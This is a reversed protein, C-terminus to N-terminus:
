VDTYEGTVPNISLKEFLRPWTKDSVFARFPFPPSLGAAWKDHFFETVVISAKVLDGRCVKLIPELAANVFAPHHEEDPEVPKGLEDFAMKRAEKFDDMVQEQPSMARPPKPPVNPLEEQFNGNKKKKKEINIASRQDSFATNSKAQGGRSAVDFRERLPDDNRKTPAERHSSPPSSPPTSTDSSRIPVASGFKEVRAQVSNRGGISGNQRNRERAVVPAFFRSMGRVRYTDAGRAELIGLTVLYEPELIKGGSALEFRRTIEARDLVVETKGARVLDELVRPDGNLEWFDILSGKAHQTSVQIKAALLAVKPAVARDIQTYPLPDSDDHKAM